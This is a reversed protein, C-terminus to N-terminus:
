YMFCCCELLTKLLSVLLDVQMDKSGILADFMVLVHCEKHVLSVPSIYLYYYIYIYIYIYYRAWRVTSLKLGIVLGLHYMLLTTHHVFNLIFMYNWVINLFVIKKVFIPHVCKVFACTHLTEFFSSWVQPRYIPGTGFFHFIKGFYFYSCALISVDILRVLTCLKM